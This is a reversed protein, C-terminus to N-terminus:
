PTAPNMGLSRMFEERSQQPSQTPQGQNQESAFRQISGRMSQIGQKVVDPGFEEMMAEIFPTSAIALNVAAAQEEPGALNNTLLKRVPRMTYMTAVVFNRFARDAYKLAGTEWIGAIQSGASMGGASKAAQQVLQGPLLFDKLQKLDEFTSDGLATRLRKAMNEDELLREMDEAAYVKSGTSRSYITADDLVKKFTLRRIDELIDPRDSLMGLLAQMDRPQTDKKFVVRGVFETPKITDPKLNGESVAKVLENRYARDKVEQASLMQRLSDSSLNGSNVAAILEKEPLTSGEAVALTRAANRLKAANSGFADNFADPADKALRTIRNAFGKADIFGEIKDRGFTEDRISQQIGTMEPSKAGFFDRYARYLDQNTAGGGTGGGTVRDVLATEGLYSGQEVDRFLEAIGKRQFKGVERAVYDNADQWQQRLAPDIADLGTVIRNTISDRLKYLERNKVGPIAEGKAIDNDISRRMKILEDLRFQQGRGRQLARIKPLIGEESFEELVETVTIPVPKGTPGLIPSPRTTEVTVQKGLLSKAENALDDGSINKVQTRPDSEVIGYLRDREARYADRLGEARTRLQDGLDTKSVPAGIGTVLEDSAEASAQAASRQVNQELPATKAGLVAMAREGALEEDPADGGMAARQLASIQQEREKILKEFPLSAGPKQMQQAESKLLFTNGTAEAPTLQLAIGYKDKFFQQAARANFQREGLNSFPSLSKTVAKAAGGAVAEFGMGVGAGIARRKGIEVPDIMGEELTRVAVDKGAGALESGVATAVLTKFANIVGPARSGLKLASLAGGAIEPLTAALSALDGMDVGIPDVLVDKAKGNEDRTEVILWGYDNRRVKGGPYAANLAKEEEEATPQVALRLRQMFPIGNEMDMPIGPRAGVKAAFDSETQPASRIRSQEYAQTQKNLAEESLPALSLERALPVANTQAPAAAPTMGISRMFEDRTMEAM